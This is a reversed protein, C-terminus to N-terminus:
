VVLQKYGLSAAGFNLLLGIRYGSAKLYNIVQSQHQENIAELAKVELIIRDYCLFDAFYRAQLPEGKYYVPLEVERRCPINQALLQKELADQYVRELFGRGLEKHVEIAAGIIEYTRPDRPM